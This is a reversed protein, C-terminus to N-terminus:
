CFLGQSGISARDGLGDGWSYLESSFAIVWSGLLGGDSQPSSSLVLPM